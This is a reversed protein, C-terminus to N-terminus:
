FTTSLRVCGGDNVGYSRIINDGIEVYWAGDTDDQSSSLYFDSLGYPIITNMEDDFEFSVKFLDLFAAWEGASPVFWGQSVKTQIPGWVDKYTSRGNQAGFSSQKWATIMDDTNDKGKGFADYTIVETNENDYASYYWMYYNGEETFDELDMVYFRDETGGTGTPALV